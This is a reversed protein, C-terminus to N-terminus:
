PAEPTQYEVEKQWPEWVTEFGVFGKDTKPLPRTLMHDVKCEPVTAPDAPKGM